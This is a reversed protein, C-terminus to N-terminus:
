CLTEPVAPRDARTRVSSLLCAEPNPSKTSAIAPAGRHSGRPLFPWSGSSCWRFTGACNGAAERFLETQGENEAASQSTSGLRGSVLCPTFDVQSAQESNRKQKGYRAGCRLQLFSQITKVSLCEFGPSDHENSIAWGVVLDFEGLRDDGGVPQRNAMRADFAANRVGEVVPQSVHVALIHGPNIGVVSARRFTQRALDGGQVIEM